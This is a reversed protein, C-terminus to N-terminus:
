QFATPIAPLGYGEITLGGVVPEHFPNMSRWGTYRSKIPTCIVPSTGNTIVYNCRVSCWFPLFIVDVIKNARYKSMLMSM